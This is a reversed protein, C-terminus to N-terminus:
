DGYRNPDAGAAGLTSTTAAAGGDAAYAYVGRQAAVVSDYGAYVIVDNAAPAVTFDDVAFKLKTSTPALSVVGTSSGAKIALHSDLLRCVDAIAFTLPDAAPTTTYANAECTAIKTAPDWSVVKAAPAFRARGDTESIAITLKSTRTKWDVTAGIVQGAVSDATTLRTGTKPDRIAQDSCVVADGIDLSLVQATVTLTVIAVRSSLRRIRSAVLYRYTVSRVLDDHRYPIAIEEIAGVHPPYLSRGDLADVIIKNAGEGDPGLDTTMVVRDIARGRTEHTIDKADTVYQGDLTTTTGGAYVDALRLLTWQTRNTGIAFGLPSFLRNLADRAKESKEGGLWFESARINALEGAKATEFAAVDVRAIPVGLAYRPYLGNNGAGIHTGRDWNTAGATKNTGDLSLLINLAIDCPHDSPTFAGGDPVYGFPPYDEDISAYLIEYATGGVSRREGTTDIPTGWVPTAYLSSGTAPYVAPVDPLYLYHGTSRASSGAPLDRLPVDFSEADMTSAIRFRYRIVQPDANLVAVSDFRERCQIIVTDIGSKPESAVYGTMILSEAGASSGTRNVEYVWVQRGYLAPPASIYVDSGDVHAAAASGAFARTVTLTVGAVNTVDLSERDIFVVSGNVIGVDAPVPAKVNLTVAGATIAGDLETVPRARTRLWTVPGVAPRFELRFSGVSMESGEINWTSGVGSPPEALGASYQATAYDPVAPWCYKHIGTSDGSLGEITVIYVKKDM